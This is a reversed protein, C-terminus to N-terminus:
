LSFISAGLKFNFIIYQIFNTQVLIFIMIMTYHILKLFRKAQCDDDAYGEPDLAGCNEFHLGNPEDPAWSLGSMVSGNRHSMWVGEKPVDWVGSWFLHCESDPLQRTTEVIERTKEYTNPNYLGGGLGECVYTSEMFNMSPLLQIDSAMRNFCLSELDVDFTRSNVLIWDQEWSTSEGTMDRKCYAISEIEQMTLVRSWTNFQTINGIFTLGPYIKPDLYGVTLSTAKSTTQFALTHNQMRKADLYFEIEFDRRTICIHYWQHPLFWTDLLVYRYEEALAFRLRDVNM